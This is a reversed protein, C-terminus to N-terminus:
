VEEERRLKLAQFREKAERLENKFKIVRHEAKEKKEPVIEKQTLQNYDEITLSFSTLTASIQGIM